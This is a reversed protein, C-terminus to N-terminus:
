HTLIGSLDVATYILVLALFLNIGKRFPENKLKNKIAAGCIAWTSTAAFATLSLLLACVALLSIHHSLAALFTSFITLGYVAVKPNFLQLVFGKSFAKPAGNADELSSNSRLIGLALWLIYLGGLWRLYKQAAPMMELLTSSLFACAIMIVFFGLTIGCLFHLTKKYGYTIGMSASSINNPGPSFTTAIVFFILPVIEINM